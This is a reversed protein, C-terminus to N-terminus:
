YMPMDSWLMTRYRKFRERGGEPRCEGQEHGRGCSWTTRTLVFAHSCHFLNSEHQKKSPQREVSHHLLCFPKALHLLCLLCCANLTATSVTVLLCHKAHSNVEKFELSKQKRGGDLTVCQKESYSNWRLPLLLVQMLLQIRWGFRCRHM